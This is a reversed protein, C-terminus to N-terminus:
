QSSGGRVAPLNSFSANGSLYNTNASKMTCLEMNLYPKQNAAAGSFAKVIACLLFLWCTGCAFCSRVVSECFRPMWAALGFKLYGAFVLDSRQQSHVLFASLFVGCRQLLHLLGFHVPWGAHACKPPPCPPLTGEVKESLESVIHWTGWMKKKLNRLINTECWATGRV